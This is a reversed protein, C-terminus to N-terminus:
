NTARRGRNALRIKLIRKVESVASAQFLRTGNALRRCPILGKDAYLRVTDGGVSAGRSIDTVTMDFGENM